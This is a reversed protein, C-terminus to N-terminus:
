DRSKRKTEPSLNWFVYDIDPTIKRTYGEIQPLVTKASHHIGLILNSSSVFRDYINDRSIDNESKYSGVALQLDLCYKSAPIPRQVAERLAMEGWQNLSMDALEAALAAKRHVEPDVRFMMKGSYSKQPEKGAKACTEVYDDVSQHFAERLEDVSEGHFGVVDTIGVIRGVFIGDEDDYEIRAQYGKYTMASM